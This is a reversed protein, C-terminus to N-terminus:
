AVVLADVVEEVPVDTLKLFRLTSDFNISLRQYSREIIAIDEDDAGGRQLLVALDPSHEYRLSHHEEGQRVAFYPLLIPLLKDHAKKLLASIHGMKVPSACLLLDAHLVTRCLEPSDDRAKCEGPTEVWCAFCGRCYEINMDRLQLVKINHGKEIALASFQSLYGDFDSPEPNGNLVCIKM